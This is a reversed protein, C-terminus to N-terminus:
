FDEEILPTLDDSISNYCWYDAPIHSSATGFTQTLKNFLAIESNTGDSVYYMGNRIPLCCNSKVWKLPEAKEPLKKIQQKNKYADRMKHLKNYLDTVKTGSRFINLQSILQQKNLLNKFSSSNLVNPTDVIIDSTEARDIKQITNSVANNVVLSILNNQLNLVVALKRKLRKISADQNSVKQQSQRAISVAQKAGYKLQSFVDRTSITQDNAVNLKRQFSRIFTKNTDNEQHLQNIEVLQDDCKMEALLVKQRLMMIERALAQEKEESPANQSTLMNNEHLKLYIGNSIRKAAQVISEM